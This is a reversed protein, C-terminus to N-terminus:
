AQDKLKELALRFALAARLFDQHSQYTKRVQMYAGPDLLPAFAEFQGIKNVLSQLDEIPVLTFMRAVMEAQEKALVESATLDYFM